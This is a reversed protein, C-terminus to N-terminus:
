RLKKKKKNSSLRNIKISVANPTYKIISRPLNSNVNIYTSTLKALYDLPM